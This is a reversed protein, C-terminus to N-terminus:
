KASHAKPVLRRFFMFATAGFRSMLFLLSRNSGMRFYYQGYLMITDIFLKTNQQISMAKRSASSYRLRRYYIANRGALVIKNVRSSISFMFLSDEGISFTEPFRNPGIVAMPILKACASSMFSRFTFLSYKKREICRTYARSIYDHGIVRSEESFTRVDSAVIIDSSSEIFLSEIYGPSVIDDDDIFMVQQAKAENLGCNRAGSVSPNRVYLLRIPTRSTAIYRAIEDYYPTRDGNLVVLIEIETSDISQRSLSELCEYLYPGPRYTPVIVTVKM